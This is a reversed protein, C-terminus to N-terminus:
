VRKRLFPPEWGKTLEVNNKYIYLPIYYMYIYLYLIYMCFRIYYITM